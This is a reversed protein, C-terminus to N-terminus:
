PWGDVHGGKQLTYLPFERFTFVAFYLCTRLLEWKVHSGTEYPGPGSSDPHLQVRNECATRDRSPDFGLSLLCCFVPTFVGFRLFRLIYAFKRCNLIFIFRNFSVRISRHQIPHPRRRQRLLRPRSIISWGKWSARSENSPTRPSGRDREATSPRGFAKAEPTPALVATRTWMPQHGRPRGRYRINISRGPPLRTTTSWRRASGPPQMAVTARGMSTGRPTPVKCAPTHGTTSYARRPTQSPPLMGRRPHFQSDQHPWRALRTAPWPSHLLPWGVLRTAPRPSSLQQIWRLRILSM